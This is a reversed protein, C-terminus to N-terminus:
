KAKARRLAAQIHRHALDKGLESIFDDFYQELTKAPKAKCGLLRAIDEDQSAFWYAWELRFNNRNVDELANKLAGPTVPRGKPEWIQNLRFAVADHKRLNGDSYTEVFADMLQWLEERWLYCDKKEQKRETESDLGGIEIQKAAAVM